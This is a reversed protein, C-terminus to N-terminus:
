FAEDRPPRPKRRFELIDDLDDRVGDSLAEEASSEQYGSQRLLRARRWRHYMPIAKMLLYGAALGGLHTEISSQGGQVGQLINLVIVVFVLGRASLTVPLPFLMFQREPDIMAFAILLGM